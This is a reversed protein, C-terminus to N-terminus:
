FLSIVSINQRQTKFGRGTIEEKSNQFVYVVLFICLNSWVVQSNVIESAETVTSVADVGDGIRQGIFYLVMLIM